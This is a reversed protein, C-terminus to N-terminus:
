DKIADAEADDVPRGVMKQMDSMLADSIKPKKLENHNEDELKVSEVIYKANINHAVAFALRVRDSQSGPSTTPTAVFEPLESQIREALQAAAREDYVKGELARIDARLSASLKDEAVGSIETKEVTAATQAAVVASGTLIFFLLPLFYKKM